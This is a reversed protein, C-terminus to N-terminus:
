SHFPVWWPKVEANLMGPKVTPDETGLSVAEALDAAKFITMGGASMGGAGEMFPGSLVIKGKAHCEEMYKVHDWFEPQENYPTGAVWKPSPSHFVVYYTPGKQDVM